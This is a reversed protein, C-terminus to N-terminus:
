DLNPNEDQNPNPNVNTLENVETFEVNGDADITMEFVLWYIENGAGTPVTYVETPTNVNGRYVEIKAGSARLTSTGSYHHVYFKYTGATDQRITTTEPGYSTVDDLDLDVIIMGENYYVEDAYWTHFQGGDVAPGTLHSDLDAPNENWTLVIRTESVDPVKIATQDQDLNKVNVAAVGILYTKIYATGEGGLEGTYIGPAL